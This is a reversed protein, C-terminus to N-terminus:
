SWYLVRDRYRVLALFGGLTVRPRDGVVPAVRHLCRGSAFIVLDGVAPTLVACDFRREIALHDWRGNPLAPKDPNDLTLGYVILEGGAIPLSLPTIFSLVRSDDADARLAEYIKLSFHHDHHVGIGHGERLLRLTYPAFAERPGAEPPTLAPKGGAM